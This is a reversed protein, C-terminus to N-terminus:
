VDSVRLAPTLEGIARSFTAYSSFDILVSSASSCMRSRLPIYM